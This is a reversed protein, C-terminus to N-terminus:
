APGSISQMLVQKLTSATQRSIRMTKSLGDMRTGSLADAPLSLGSGMTEQSWSNIVFMPYGGTALGGYHVAYFDALRNLIYSSM